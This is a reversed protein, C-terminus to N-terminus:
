RGNPKPKSGRAKRELREMRKTIRQTFRNLRLRLTLVEEEQELLAKEIVSMRGPIGRPNRDNNDAM